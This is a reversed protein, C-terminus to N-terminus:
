AYDKFRAVIAVWNDKTLIEVIEFNQAQLAAIVEDQRDDIIGSTIFLGNPKILGAVIPSLPIIVDAVINALVLDFDGQILSTDDLINGCLATYCSKSIGNHEANIQVMKAASPDIDVATIHSAGLLLAIIGLIGSGCGIDLATMGQNIYKDLLKICLETSQHQGTGFVHGPDITFVIEGDCSEYDEWFPRIVIREGIKLPKYFELWADTWDDKVREFAVVGLDGVAHTIEADSWRTEDPSLYFRVVPEGDIPLSEDLYDWSAADHSELFRLNEAPDDIEIAELGIAMLAGCLPEISEHKTTIAVKTWLNNM